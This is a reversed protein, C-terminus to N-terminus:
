RNVPLSEDDDGDEDFLGDGDSDVPVHGTRSGSGTGHLFYDRGDPNVTPVIYFVREDVLRTIEEIRGYNEMLYWITYLCIEGGQIENGHVNAEVFMAAKDSEATKKVKDSKSDKSAEAAAPADKKNDKKSDDATAKLNLIFAFAITLIFWSVRQM